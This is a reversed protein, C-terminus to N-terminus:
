RAIRLSLPGTVRTYLLVGTARSLRDPHPTTVKFGEIVELCAKSGNFRRRTQELVNTQRPTRVLKDLYETADETHVSTNAPFRMM